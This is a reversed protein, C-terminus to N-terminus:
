LVAIHGHKGVEFAAVTQKTSGCSLHNSTYCDAVSKWSLTARLLKVSRMVGKRVNATRHQEVLQVDLDTKAM